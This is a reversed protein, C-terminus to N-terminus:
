NAECTCVHLLRDIRGRHMDNPDDIPELPFRSTFVLSFRSRTGAKLRSQHNCPVQSISPRMLWCYRMLWPEGGRIFIVSSNEASLRM